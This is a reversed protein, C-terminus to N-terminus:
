PKCFKEILNNVDQGYFQEFGRRKSEQLYECGETTMNMAFYTEAKNKYVWPNNPDLEISKNFLKIAENYRKMKHYCHGKNSFLYAKNQELTIMDIGKDLYALASDYQDVSTYILGLNNYTQFFGPDIKLATKLIGIAKKHEKKEDYATALNILMLKNKPDRKLYREYLSIAKDIKKQYIYTGGLNNIIGVRMENSKAHKLAKQFYLISSDFMGSMQYYVALMDLLTDYEPRIEAAMLLDDIAGSRNSRADKVLARTMIFEVEKPHTNILQDCIVEADQYKQQEMKELVPKLLVESDIQARAASFTFILLALFLTRM